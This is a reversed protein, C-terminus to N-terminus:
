RKAECTSSRKSEAVLVYRNEEMGDISILDMPVFEEEGGSEGNVSLIEKEGMMSIGCGPKRYCELYIILVMDNINAEKSTGVSESPNSQTDRYETIHDDVREKIKKITADGFM